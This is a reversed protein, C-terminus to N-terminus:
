NYKEYYFFKGFMQSIENITPREKPDERVMIEIINKVKNYYDNNQIKDFKQFLKDNIIAKDRLETIIIKKENTNNFHTFFEMIIIGFSYIDAKLQYRNSRNGSQPWQEPASYIPTGIGATHEDTKITNLKITIDFDSIKCIGESTILINDPKLDRHLVKNSHLYHLGSIIQKIMRDCVELSRNKQQTFWEKLDCKCIEMVQYYDIVNDKVPNEFTRLLQM